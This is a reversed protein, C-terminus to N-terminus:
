NTFLGVRQAADDLLARTKQPTVPEEPRVDPGLIWGLVVHLESVCVSLLRGPPSRSIYRPGIGELVDWYDLTTAIFKRFWTPDGAERRGLGGGMEGLLGLFHWPTRLAWEFLALRDVPIGGKSPANLIRYFLAYPHVHVSDDLVRSPNLVILSGPLNSMPILPGWDLSDLKAGKKLQRGFERIREQVESTTGVLTQPVELGTM